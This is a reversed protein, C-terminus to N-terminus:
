FNIFDEKKTWYTIGLILLTSCILAVKQMVALWGWDGSGYLFLTYYFILMCAVCCIKLFHLKSKLVYVTIYFLGLLSLTSSLVVMADHLPTAIMFNFAINAIGVTKLVMTVHKVPIRQSMNIFFLGDGVSHFAMGVIAWIRAKNEMGNIAKEQFLNSIFNKSWDFGTSHADSLSGGPYGLAATILCIGALITCILVSHRAIIQKTTTSIM